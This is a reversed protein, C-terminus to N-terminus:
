KACVRLMINLGATSHVQQVRLLKRGDLNELSGRKQTFRQVTTNVIRRLRTVSKQVLSVMHCASHAATCCFFHDGECTLVTAEVM